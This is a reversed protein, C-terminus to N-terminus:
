IATAAARPGRRGRIPSGPGSGSAGPVTGLEGADLELVLESGGGPLIGTRQTNLSISLSRACVGAKFVTGQNPNPKQTSLRLHRAGCTDYLHHELVGLLADPGVATHASLQASQDIILKGDEDRCRGANPVRPRSVRPGAM